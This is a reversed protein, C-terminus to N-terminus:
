HDEKKDEGLAIATSNRAQRKSQMKSVSSYADEASGLVNACGALLGATLVALLALALCRCLNRKMAEREPQISNGILLDM